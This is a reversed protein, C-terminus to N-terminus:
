CYSSPACRGNRRGPEAHRLAIRARLAPILGAEPPHRAKVPTRSGGHHDCPVGRKVVHNCAHEQGAAHLYLEHTLPRLLRKQPRHCVRARLKAEKRAHIARHGGDHIAFVFKRSRFADRQERKGRRLIPPAREHQGRRERRSVSRCNFRAAHM